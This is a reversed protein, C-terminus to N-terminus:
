VAPCRQILDRSGALRANFGQLRSDVRFQDLDDVVPDAESVGQDTRSDTLRGRGLLNTLHVPSEGLDDGVRLAPEPVAGHSGPFGVLVNGGRELLM